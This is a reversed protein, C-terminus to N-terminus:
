VTLMNLIRGNGAGVRQAGEGRQGKADFVKSKGVGRPPRLVGFFFATVWTVALFCM